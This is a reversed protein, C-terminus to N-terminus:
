TDVVSASGEETPQATPRACPKPGMKLSPVEEPLMGRATINKEAIVEAMAPFAVKASLM